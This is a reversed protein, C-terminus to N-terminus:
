EYLKTTRDVEALDHWQGDDMKPAAELDVIWQLKEMISTVQTTFPEHGSDVTLTGQTNAPHKVYFWQSHESAPTQVNSWNKEIGIAGNDNLDKDYNTELENVMGAVALTAGIYPNRLGVAVSTADYLNDIFDGDRQGSSDLESWFQYYPQTRNDDITYSSDEVTAEFRYSTSGQENAMGEEVKSRPYQSDGTKNGHYHEHIAGAIESKDLYYDDWDAGHFQSTLSFEHRWHGGVVSDEDWIAGHYRLNFLTSWYYHVSSGPDDPYYLEDGHESDWMHVNAAAPSAGAAMAIGSAGLASLTKLANRRTIVNEESM